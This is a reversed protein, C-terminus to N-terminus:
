HKEQNNISKVALGIATTEEDTLPYKSSKGQSIPKVYVRNGDRSHLSSIVFGSNRGDLMAVSFSQDGGIDNFPNFRVIGLRHMGRSALGHLQNSIEFLEQVDKNIAKTEQINSLILEELGQGDKGSFFIKSKKDIRFFRISIYVGLLLSIIGLILSLGSIIPLQETM